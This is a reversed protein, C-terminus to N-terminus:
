SQQVLHVLKMKWLLKQNRRKPQKTMLRIIEVEENTKADENKGDDEVQTELDEEFILLKRIKQYQWTVPSESSPWCITANEFRTKNSASFSYSIDENCSTLATTTNSISISVPQRIEEEQLYKEIRNVSILSEFLRMVVEPIVNLSHRLETLTSLSTFAVPANLEKGELKTFSWFTACTVLIPTRYDIFHILTKCLM